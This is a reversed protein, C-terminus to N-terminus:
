TKNKLKDRLAKPILMHAKCGWVKLNEINPKLSTWIEYPTLPKSKTKVSNLIYTSTSLAEEWFYIPLDAYAMMSRTMEM